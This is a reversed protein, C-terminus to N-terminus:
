QIGEERLCRWVEVPINDLSVAKARGMEKLANSVEKTTIDRNSGYEHQSQANPTQGRGEKTGKSENLLDSFYQYWRTKIDDQRLLVKEDEDKIYKVAKIDQKKRSRAKALKFIHKEGEKTDLKKYFDEYARWKAEAVEKKAVRKAEKYIERKSICDREETCTM